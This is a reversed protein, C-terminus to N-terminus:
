NFVGFSVKQDAMVDRLVRSTGVTWRVRVRRVLTVSGLGFHVTDLYSQGGAQAGRGGVRRVMRKRRPMYVTVLANLSTCANTFENGVRVHLYHNNSSLRMFNKMLRYNGLFAKKWGQGEIYDVRGDMNYDFAVVNSGRTTNAKNTQPDIEMFTGDGNNLLIKDPGYYTCIIIDVYGNNDFDAASVGMSDTGNPILAEATVDVYRGGVNKLLVDDTDEVEPPGRPTVLASRARAIYLDMLGDNNYDLECVASISRRLARIAPKVQSTIETLHFPATLNFFRLISFHVLEMKMDNDIDTVIAREENISQFEPIDRLEYDGQVNEFAYHKLGVNSGLLNIFLLDPGGGNRRQQFRTKMSLDMFVAVRGRSKTEDDGFGYRFSVDEITRNKKVVFIRPVRLNTGRGGGVSLTMLREANSTNRQAVSVGHIDAKLTFPSREYTGGPLGFYVQMPSRNHFTLALDYIGDGDM